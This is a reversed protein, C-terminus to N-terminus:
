APAVSRRRILYTAVLAVAAIWAALNAPEPIPSFAAAGVWTRQDTCGLGRLRAAATYSQGAGCRLTSPYLFDATSLDGSSSVYVTVETGATFKAGCTPPFSFLLDFYGGGSTRFAEAGTSAATPGATNNGISFDLNTLNLSSNLNLYIKSVSEGRPLGPAELTVAVTHNDTNALTVAIWPNTGGPSPKGAFVTSLSLITNPNVAEVMAHIRCPSLLLVAAGILPLSYNKSSM